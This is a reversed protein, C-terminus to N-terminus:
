PLPVSFGSKGSLDAQLSLNFIPFQLLNRNIYFIIGKTHISQIFQIIFGYFFRYNRSAIVKRNKLEILFM